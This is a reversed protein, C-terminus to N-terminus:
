FIQKVADEGNKALLVKNAEVAPTQIHAFGYQSYSSEIISKLEDFVLQESPSYEPFGGPRFM